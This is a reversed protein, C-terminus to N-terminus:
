AYQFLNSHPQGIALDKLGKVLGPGLHIKLSLRHQDRRLQDFRTDFVYRGAEGPM